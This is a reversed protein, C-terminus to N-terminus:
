DSFRSLPLRDMWIPSIKRVRIKLFFMVCCHCCLLLLMVIVVCCYCRLLLMIETTEPHQRHVNEAAEQEIRVLVDAVDGEIRQELHPKNKINPYTIENLMRLIWPFIPNPKMRDIYPMIIM